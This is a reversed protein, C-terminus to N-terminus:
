VAQLLSVPKQLLAKRTGLYASLMTLFTVSLITIIAIQWSIAWISDFILYSLLRSALLSLLSGFFSATLGFICFELIIIQKINNFSAGLVKLLNIEKMRSQSNYRSISYVVVMGVFIASLAMVQIAWSIQGTIEFIKKVALTIDVMSVNPFKSVIKNQLMIKDKERVKYITALFTSPADELVGPQFLVYFNPQMTQWQIRRINVIRGKIPIGQVDFTLTSGVSVKLSESYRLDLSIEPLSGSEPDYVGSFENGEIISESDYLNLRYSLNQTRRRFRRDRNQERSGGEIRGQKELEEGNIHSLRAEIWASITNMKYNHAALLSELPNVQDSQIDFLFFSPLNTSKPHKIEQQLGYDIQPILNILLAGLGIALFSSIVAIKNRYLNRFALKLVLHKEPSLKNATLILGWGILGLVIFSGVLSAIFVSGIFWSNSQWASLLWFTALLPFYAVISKPNFKNKTTSSRQDENFVVIPKLNHIKRLIPLCFLISGMVGMLFALFVSQWSFVTEFGKPLFDTMLSTLLPLFLFSLLFSFFASVTGLAALQILLFFYTKKKEAGLMMLIAIDKLNAGLYSRFLYATGVGALFLAVLSVLGLYDSLYGHFRTLRRGANNHTRISVHSNEGFHGEAIKKLREALQEVDVSAPISYFYHHYRRSGVDILGTKKAQELGMLIRYAFGGSLAFGTSTDVITDTIKFTKSGISVSDGQKSKLATLIEPQVWISANNILQNEISKGSVVQQTGLKIEGYLPYGKDVALIQILRSDTAGAVMSLFDIRRTKATYTGIGNELIELDSEKLEYTSRIDIDASLIARSQNSIHQSISVQFSNLAIFGVLGLSLNLVFFLSFRPNNRIEKYALKFWIM